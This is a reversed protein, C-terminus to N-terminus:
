RVVVFEGDLPFIPRRLRRYPFRALNASCLGATDMEVVGAAIPMYAARYAVASKVAILKQQEPIVGVGRLQALDFPPTKRETLLLNVGGARLWVTRGMRITNGYFSAFHNDPLECPFTGDSLVRVIGTVQVPAGHWSDTKGGVRLRVTASVGADWCAAVAEHDALMVAGEQVDAALMARLADTGDGPTGGGINDASDVLIIPGGPMALARAVAEDPAFFQPLASHRHEWLLAALEDAYRRALAPDDDTTVILSPGVFPADAYGFGGMVCICVVAEEAEMEAARAHVARLPMDATGTSQAALILPPQAYAATPRIEGRLLRDMIAAAEVGRAHPDIHPNTDFAVLVDALEVTRPSINGHMDLEVVIPINPGVVARVHELIDSEADLQAETVMAGHLMLLVGDLPLAAELRRILGGLMSQYAEEAVLGGPLSTGYLTPLLQWGYSAAGEIMGGIGARTGSMEHLIADGEYIGQARFDDITMHPEAFVHTEHVIGGLAVRSPTM